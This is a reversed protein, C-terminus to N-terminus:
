GKTYYRHLWALRDTPDPGFYAWSQQENPGPLKLVLLSSAGTKFAPLLRDRWEGAQGGRVIWVDDYKHWWWKTAKKVRAHVQDRQAPTPRDVIIVFFQESTAM